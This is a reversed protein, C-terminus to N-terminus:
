AAAMGMARRWASLQGLHSHVHGGVYFGLAGGLTPFLERMRGEAPNPAILTEDNANSLAALAARYAEFFRTTLENMAPYRKGEPDDECAVGNRFLAEYNEPVAAPGVPQNLQTLIRQPYLSLHGLIFAPHNSQVIVGGPRAFRAFNNPAIGALLREAYLLGLNGSAALIPGINGM